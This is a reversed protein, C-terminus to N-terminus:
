VKVLSGQGPGSEIVPMLIEPLSTCANTNRLVEGPSELSIFQYTILSQRQRAPNNTNNEERQM